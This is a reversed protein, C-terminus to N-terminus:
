RLLRYDVAARAKAFAQEKTAASISAPHTPLRGPGPYVDVRWGSSHEIAILTYGRYEVESTRTELM